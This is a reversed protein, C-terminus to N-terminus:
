RGPHRPLRTTRRVSIPKTRTENVATARHQGYDYPEVSASEVGSASTALRPSTVQHLNRLSNPFGVRCLARGALVGTSGSAAALLIEAAIYESVFQM